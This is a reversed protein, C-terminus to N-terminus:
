GAGAAILVVESTGGGERLVAESASGLWAPGDLLVAESELGARGAEREVDRGGDRAYGSDMGM